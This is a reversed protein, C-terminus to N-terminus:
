QANKNFCVKWKKEEIYFLLLFPFTKNNNTYQCHYEITPIGCFNKDCEYLIHFDSLTQLVGEDSEFKILKPLTRGTSTFWVGCAVTYQKSYLKEETPKETNTGIGLGMTLSM